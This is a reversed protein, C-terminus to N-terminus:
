LLHGDDDWRPPLVHGESRDLRAVEPHVVHANSTPGAGHCTTCATPGDAHCSLCSKKAAGGTFDSGHCGACIAFDWGLRQLEKGHFDDSAPDLIGAPHVSVTTSGADPRPRVDSCAALAALAVGVVAVPSCRM